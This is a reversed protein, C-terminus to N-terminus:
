AAYKVQIARRELLQKYLARMDDLLRERSYNSAVFELGRNGLETRLESNEILHFLGAAVADADNSQVSLGRRCVTYRESAHEETPRASYISLEM